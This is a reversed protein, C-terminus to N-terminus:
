LGLDCSTEFYGELAETREAIRDAGDAVRPWPNPPPVPGRFLPRKCRAKGGPEPEPCPAGPPPAPQCLGPPTVSGPGSSQVPPSPPIRPSPHPNQKPLPPTDPCGMPLPTVGRGANQPRLRSVSHRISRLLTLGPASVQGDASRDGTEPGQPIREVQHMRLPSKFLNVWKSERQFVSWIM